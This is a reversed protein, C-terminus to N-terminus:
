LETLNMGCTVTYFVTDRSNNLTTLEFSLQYCSADQVLTCYVRIVEHILQRSISSPPVHVSRTSCIKPANEFNRFAVILTTMDTQGDAYSLEAGVPRIKM